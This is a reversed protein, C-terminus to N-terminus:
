SAELDGPKATVFREVVERWHDLNPVIRGPTKARDDARRLIVADIAYPVTEFAAIETATMAGGQLELTRTSDGALLDSYSADTAVLYRKAPVHLEVLAAIRDGLMPRIAAAAVAGHSAEDSDALRHAVDHLLGAIQLEVDDPRSMSLEYACQLGHEASDTELVTFLDALNRLDQSHTALM